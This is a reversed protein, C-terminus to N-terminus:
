RSVLLFGVSILGVLLTVFSFLILRGQTTELFTPPLPPPPPLFAMSDQALPRGEGGGRTGWYREGLDVSGDSSRDFDEGQSKGVLSRGFSARDMSRDQWGGDDRLRDSSGDQMRGAGVESPDNVLIQYDEITVEDRDRLSVPLLVESGNKLGVLLGAESKVFLEGNKSDFVLVPRSSRNRSLEVDGQLGGVRLVPGESSIPAEGLFEGERLVILSRANSPPDIPSEAEQLYLIRDGVQIFDGSRIIRWHEPLVEIGNLWSRNTSGVDKFFWRGGMFSIVAHEFSVAESDISIAAEPNRGITGGQASLRALEILSGETDDSIILENVM